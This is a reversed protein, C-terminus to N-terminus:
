FFLPQVKNTPSKELDSINKHDKALMLIPLPWGLWKETLQEAQKMSLSIQSNEFYQKTENPTLQLEEKRIPYCKVDSKLCVDEVRTKQSSIILLHLNTINAEILNDYFFCVKEDNLISFDDIVLVAPPSDKLAQELRDIFEAIQGITTPQELKAYDHDQKPFTNKLEKLLHKWNFFLWNDMQRLRLWAFNTKNDLIYQYVLERKNYGHPAEILVVPNKLGEDLLSAIRRKHIELLKM